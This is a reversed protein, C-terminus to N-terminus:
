VNTSPPANTYSSHARFTDIAVLLLALLTFLALAATEAVYAGFRRLVSKKMANKAKASETLRQLSYIIGEM